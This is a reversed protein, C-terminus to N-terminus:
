KAKCSFTVFCFSFFIGLLLCCFTFHIHLSSCFMKSLPWRFFHFSRGHKRTPLFSPLVGSVSRYILFICMLIRILHWKVGELICKIIIYFPFYSTNIFVHLFQFGQVNSTLIYFPISFLKTGSASNYMSHSFLSQGLLEMELYVGLSNFLIWVFPNGQHSLHYFLYIRRCHLLGSNLGQTLLIGQLLSHSDM